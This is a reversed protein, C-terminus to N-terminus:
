YTRLASDSQRDGHLWALRRVQSEHRAGLHSCIGCDVVVVVVVVVPRQLQYCRTRCQAPTSSRSNNRLSIPRRKAATTSARASDHLSRHIPMQALANSEITVFGPEIEANNALAAEAGGVAAAFRMAMARSVEIGCVGLVVLWSLGHAGSSCADALVLRLRV